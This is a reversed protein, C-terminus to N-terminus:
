VRFVRRSTNRALGYGSEVFEKGRRQIEAPSGRSMFWNIIPGKCGLSGEERPRRELTRLIAKKKGVRVKKGRRGESRRGVAQDRRICQDEKRNRRKKKGKIIAQWFFEGEKKKMDKRDM